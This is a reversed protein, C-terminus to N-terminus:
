LGLSRAIINKQIDNTGSYILSGVSDRLDREIGTEAVYGSAGFLEVAALSNEVFCRSVHLKAMASDATADEGRAKKWGIRYVMPRCTELRVAMEAIRHSVAQFKGIPQGFQRRTRAHTICRELQRRMTGLTAALIAGREWEMSAIFVEAGRGERGLLADDPLRCGEFAVEGMPVTRVGMKPISRVLRLGPTDRPVIFASIGLIGRDPTTMAYLVFLNAIPGSTIWTKRGNVVWGGLTRTAATRMSFIDSGAEAESAANAGIITGDCLGPLWRAKQVETGYTLIPLTNTWLGANLAFILGNDPCGYGLGDMAAITEPLGQGQGGYSTPVPLGQIGFRACRSWGEHWFERREDRGFLDDKLDAIAFAIARTQWDQQTASLSFDM